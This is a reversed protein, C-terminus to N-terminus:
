RRKSFYSIGTHAQAPAGDGIEDGQVRDEGRQGDVQKECLGKQSIATSAMKASDSTM